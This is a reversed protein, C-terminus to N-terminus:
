KTEQVATLNKEVLADLVAIEQDGAEGEIDGPMSAYVKQIEKLRQQRDM